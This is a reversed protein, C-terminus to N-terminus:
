IFFLLSVSDCIDSRQFATNSRNSFIQIIYLTCLICHVCYETYVIYLTYTSYHPFKWRVVDVKGLGWQHQSALLLLAWLPFDESLAGNLQAANHKTAICQMSCIIKVSHEMSNRQTTIWGSTSRQLANMAHLLFDEVQMGNGVSPDSVLCPGQRPTLQSVQSTQWQCSTSSM